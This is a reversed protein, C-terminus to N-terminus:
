NTRVHPKIPGRPVEMTHGQITLFGRGLNTVCVDHFEEIVGFRGHNLQEAGPLKDAGTHPGCVWGGEVHV